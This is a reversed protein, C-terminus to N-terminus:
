SPCFDLSRTLPSLRAEKQADRTVDNERASGSNAPFNVRAQYTALSVPLTMKIYYNVTSNNGGKPEITAVSSDM